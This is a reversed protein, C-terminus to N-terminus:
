FEPATDSTAGCDPCVYGPPVERPWHRTTFSQFGQPTDEFAGNEFAEFAPNLRSIILPNAAFIQALEPNGLASRAQLHLHSVILNGLFVNLYEAQFIHSSKSKTPEPNTAQQQYRVFLHCRHCGGGHTITDVFSGTIEIAMAGGYAGAFIADTGNRVALRNLYVQAMFSDTMGLLLDSSQIVEMEKSSLTEVKRKAISVKCAPNIDHIDQALAEVKYQGSQHLGYAQTAPNTDSVKDPDVLILTGIGIRALNRYLNAAGGAGVGAILAGNMVERDILGNHRSFDIM